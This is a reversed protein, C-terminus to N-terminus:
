GRYIGRRLALCEGIIATLEVRLKRNEKQLREVEEVLELTKQRAKNREQRLETIRRLLAGGVVSARQEDSM